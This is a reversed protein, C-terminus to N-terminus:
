IELQNSVDKTGLISDVNRKVAELQKFQHKIEEREHYLLQKMKNLKRQENELDKLKPLKKDGLMAKLTDKAAGFIMLETEHKARYDPKNKAHFYGEQIPKLKWYNRLNKILPQVERLRGEVSKLSESNASFAARLEAVKSELDPYQM